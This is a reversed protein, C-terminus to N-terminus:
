SSPKQDRTARCPTKDTVQKSSQIRRNGRTFCALKRQPEPILFQVAQTTPNALKNMLPTKRTVLKFSPYLFFLFDYFYIPKNKTSQLCVRGRKEKKRILHFSSYNERQSMHMNLTSGHRGTELYTMGSDYLNEVNRFNLTLFHIQETSM